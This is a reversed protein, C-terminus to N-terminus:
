FTPQTKAQKQPPCLLLKRKYNRLEKLSLLKVNNSYYNLSVQVLFYLNTYPFTAEKTLSIITISFLDNKNCHFSNDHYIYITKLLLSIILCM